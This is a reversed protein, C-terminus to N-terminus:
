GVRICRIRDPQELSLFIGEGDEATINRDGDLYDIVLPLPPSHALIDAVPTGLTCVLYLGLFPASGLILNRWRRCIQVVLARPGM